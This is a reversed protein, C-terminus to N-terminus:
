CPNKQTKGRKDRLSRLAKIGESLHASINRDSCFDLLRQSGSHRSCPDSVGFTGLTTLLPHLLHKQRMHVLRRSCQHVETASTCILTASTCSVRPLGDRWSMLVGKAGEGLWKPCKQPKPVM